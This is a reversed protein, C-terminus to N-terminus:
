VHSHAFSVVADNIFVTYTRDYQHGEAIKFRLSLKVHPVVDDGEASWLQKFCDDTLQRRFLGLATLEESCLNSPQDSTGNYRAPDYSCPFPSWPM